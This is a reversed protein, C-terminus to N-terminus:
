GLRRDHRQAAKERRAAVALRHRDQSRQTRVRSPEKYAYGALVARRDADILIHLMSVMLITSSFTIGTYLRLAFSGPVVLMYITFFPAIVLFIWRAFHRLAWTRCTVDHLVWASHRRPLAGGYWYKILPWL